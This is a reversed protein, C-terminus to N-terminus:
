RTRRSAVRCGRADVAISSVTSSRTNVMVNLDNSFCLDHQNVEHLSTSKTPPGWAVRVKLEPTGVGIGDATRFNGGFAQISTARGGEFRIFLGKGEYRYSVNSGDGRFTATPTGLWRLLDAESMGLAAEGIRVRPVILGDRIAEKPPEPLSPSTGACGLLAGLWLLSAVRGM